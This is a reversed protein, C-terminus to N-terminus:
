ITSEVRIRYMQVKNQQDRIDFTLMTLGLVKEVFKNQDYKTILIQITFVRKDKLSELIKELIMQQTKQDRTRIYVIIQQIGWMKNM